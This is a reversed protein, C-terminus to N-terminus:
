VVSKRDALITEEIEIKDELIDKKEESDESIHEVEGLDNNQNDLELHDETKNESDLSAIDRSLDEVMEKLSSNLTIEKNEEPIPIQNMFSETGSNEQEKELIEELGISELDTTDEDDKSIMEYLAELIAVDDVKDDSETQNTEEKEEMEEKAEIEKAETEEAETEEDLGWFSEDPLLENVAQSIDAKLDKFFGM